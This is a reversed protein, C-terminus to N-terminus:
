ESPKCLIKIRGDPRFGNSHLRRTIRRRRQRRWFCVVRGDIIKKVPKHIQLLECSFHFARGVAVASYRDSSGKELGTQLASHFHTYKCPVDRTHRHTYTNAHTPKKNDKQKVMEKQTKEKGTPGKSCVPILERAQM